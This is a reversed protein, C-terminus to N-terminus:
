DDSSRFVRVWPGNDDYAVVDGALLYVDEDGEDLMALTCGEECGPVDLENADHQRLAEITGVSATHDEIETYTTTTKTTKMSLNYRRVRTTDIVNTYFFSPLFFVNCIQAM